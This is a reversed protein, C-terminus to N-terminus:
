QCTPSLVGQRLATRHDSLASNYHGTVIVNHHRGAPCGTGSGSPDHRIWAADGNRGPKRSLSPNVPVSATWETQPADEFALGPPTVTSVFTVTMARAYYHRVEVAVQKRAGPQVLDALSAEAQLSDRVGM